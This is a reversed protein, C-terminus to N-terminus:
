PTYWPPPQFDKEKVTIGNVEDPWVMYRKGNWIQYFCVPPVLGPGTKPMNTNPDFEVTGLATDMHTERIAKAVALHDKPDGAKKVADAWIRIQWYLFIGYAVPKFGFKTNFKNVVDAYPPFKESGIVAIMDYLMGDSQAGLLDIFEPVSPGYQMFILSNTPRELFQKMFSAENAPIYDTDVIVDPPNERIKSLVTSWDTVTVMPIMEDVTIKWGAAEFNKKLGESIWTSYPNDSTILALTKGYHLKLKGQDLWEQIRVPLATQYGLYSPVFSYSYIFDEGHGNIIRETEPAGASLIYPIKYKNAMDIEFNTLSGTGAFLADVGDKTILKEFAASVDTPAYDVVDGSVVKIEYGVLGGPESNIEDVALMVGDLSEKGEASMRGTMSGAYGITISGKPYPSKPVSLTTQWYYAGAIAVILVVLVLGVYM